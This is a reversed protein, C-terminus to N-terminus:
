PRPVTSPVQHYQHIMTDLAAFTYAILLDYDPFAALLMRDGPKLDFWHRIGKPIRLHGQQTIAEPGEAQPVVLLARQTITVTIPQGPRWNLVRMASRGALRGRADMATLAYHASEEREPVALQAIPLGPTLPTPGRRAPIIASVVADGLRVDM